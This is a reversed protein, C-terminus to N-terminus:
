AGFPKAPLAARAPDVSETIVVNVPQRPMRRERQLGVHTYPDLKYANCFGRCSM